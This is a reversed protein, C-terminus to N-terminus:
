CAWKRECGRTRECKSASKQGDGSTCGVIPVAKILTAARGIRGNIGGPQSACRVSYSLVAALRSPSLLLPLPPLGDVVLGGGSRTQSCGDPRKM